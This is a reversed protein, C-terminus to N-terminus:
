YLTGAGARSVVGLQSAINVISGRSKQRWEGDEVGDSMPEQSVMKRLAARSVLWTGRYNVGNIFDFQESSVETSRLFERQLVGACNVVYDIRKFANVVQDIFTNVFSEDSIDGPYSMVNPKNSTAALIKM